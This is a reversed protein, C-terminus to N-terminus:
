QASLPDFTGQHERTNYRFVIVSGPTLEQFTIEQVFESRGKSTVGAQQVM